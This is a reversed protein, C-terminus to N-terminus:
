RFSLASVAEFGCLYGTIGLALTALLYVFANLARRNQFLSFGEYMFASFTTYAGLFGEGLLLYFHNDAKIGTLVGLLVAGTANVAFTGAPFSGRCRRTICQAIWFRFIGGLAGGVGVLLLELDVM